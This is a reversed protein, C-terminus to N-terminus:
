GFTKEWGNPSIGSRIFERDERSTGPLALQILEGRLWKKIGRTSVKCSYGEGTLVCKGSVTTLGDPGEVM